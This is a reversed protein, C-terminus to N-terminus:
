SKARSTRRRANSKPQPSPTANGHRSVTVLEGHVSLGPRILVTMGGGNKHPFGAGVNTFFKRPTGDDNTLTESEEIVVADYREPM